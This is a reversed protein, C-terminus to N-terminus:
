SACTSQVLVKSQRKERCGVSINVKHSPLNDKHLEGCIKGGMDTAEAKIDTLITETEKKDTMDIVLVQNLKAPPAGSVRIIYLQWKLTNLYRYM